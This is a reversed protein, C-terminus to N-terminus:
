HLFFERNFARNTKNSFGKMVVKKEVQKGDETVQVDVTEVVVKKEGKDSGASVPLAALLLLGVPMLKRVNM